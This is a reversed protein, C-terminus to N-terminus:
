NVHFFPAIHTSQFVSFHEFDMRAALLIVSDLFGTWEQPESKNQNQPRSPATGLPSHAPLQPFCETHGGYRNMLVMMKGQPGDLKQTVKEVDQFYKEATKIDGIQESLTM